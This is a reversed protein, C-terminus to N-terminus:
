PSYRDTSQSFFLSIHYRSLHDAACNTVGAVHVITIDIDYHSLFFSLCILLHMSTDDRVSGKQIAAVVSTNDCEFQVSLKLLYPAWIGCSLIM